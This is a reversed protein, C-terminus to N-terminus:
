RKKPTIVITPPVPVMPKAKIDLSDPVKTINIVPTQKEPTKPVIKLSSPQPPKPTLVFRLDERSLLDLPWKINTVPKRERARWYDYAERNYHGGDACVFEDQNILAGLSIIFHWLGNDRAVAWANGSCISDRLVHNNFPTFDSHFTVHPGQHSHKNTLVPESLQMTATGHWDRRLQGPSVYVPMQYQVIYKEPYRPGRPPLAVAREEGSLRDEYAVSVYKSFEADQQLRVVLLFEEKLLTDEYFSNSM